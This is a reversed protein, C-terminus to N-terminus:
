LEDVQWIEIEILAKPFGRQLLGEVMNAKARDTFIGVLNPKHDSWAWVLYLETM